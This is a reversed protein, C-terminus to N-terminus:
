GTGAGKGKRKREGAVALAAGVLLMLMSAAVHMSPPLVHLQVFWSKADSGAARNILGGAGQVVLLIGLLGIM